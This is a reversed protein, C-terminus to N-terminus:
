RSDVKPQKGSETKFQNWDWTIVWLEAPIFPVIAFDKNFMSSALQCGINLVSFTKIACVALTLNKNCAHQGQDVHGRIIRNCIIGYELLGTLM